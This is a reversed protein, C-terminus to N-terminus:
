RVEFTLEHMPASTGLGLRHQGRAPSWLQRYPPAARQWKKGDLFWWLQLHRADRGVAAKFAVAQEDANADPELYFVDDPLPHLITITDPRMPQDEPLAATDGDCLPSAAEPPPRLDHRAAWEVWEGPVSYFLEPQTHEAPCADTARMGNRQDVKIMRHVQCVERPAEQGDPLRRALERRRHPCDPGAVHGSLPCITITELGEPQAPWSVDAPSAASPYLHQLVHRAIPAAGTLGSTRHMPEGSFNGVWVAVTYEPTTAVTWNDRADASTGTKIAVRFPLELDSHRGFGRARAADDTLMDMLIYSVRPDMVARPTPAPADRLLKPPLAAGGRGLTAYATALELLRVEGNGLALGLGYHAADRDLSSMGLARLRELGAEVGVRELARVVPVNLSSGLADRITLPGHFHDDYNKPIYAGQPTSFQVPLDPLVDSPEGVREMYLGYLFPKLTSGPQRLAVVGDNAGQAQADWYDRSGVWALVEATTTDLVVVAAQTAHRDQVRLRELAQGVIGHVAGQLTMDLTTFVEGTTGPPLRRRVEDTFHPALVRGRRPALTIPQHIAREHEAQSIAGRQLMTGLLAQQARVVRGRHQYPDYASTARPIVALFAAEALTLHAAPKDLYMQAAAEAGFLQNGYPVRNLYQELIQAKSLARELRVALVLERLKDGLARGTRGTVLKVTQQTLTSGGAVVRGRTLNLRASRAIAWVDLGAHEYFRKDEAHITAKVLWPSIAPEQPTRAARPSAVAPAPLLRLWRARGRQANLVERLPRGARDVLRTSAFREPALLEQPFPVAVVWLGLGVVLLVVVGLAVRVRRSAWVARLRQLM